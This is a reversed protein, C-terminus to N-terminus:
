CHFETARYLPIAEELIKKQSLLTGRALSQTKLPILDLFATKALCRKFGTSFSNQASSDKPTNKEDSITSFIHNLTDTM